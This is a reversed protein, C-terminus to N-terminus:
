FWFKGNVLNLFNEFRPPRDVGHAADLPFGHLVFFESINFHEELGHRSHLVSLSSSISQLAAVSVRTIRHHSPHQDCFNPAFRNGGVATPLTRAGFMLEAARPM